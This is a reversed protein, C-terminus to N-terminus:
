PGASLPMPWAPAVWSLVSPLLLLPRSTQAKGEQGGLSCESTHRPHRRGQRCLARTWVTPVVDECHGGWDRPDEGPHQTCAEKHKPSHPGQGDAPSPRWPPSSVWCLPGPLVLSPPTCGQSPGPTLGAGGPRSGLGHGVAGSAAPTEQTATEEREAHVSEHIHLVCTGHTPVFEEAIM